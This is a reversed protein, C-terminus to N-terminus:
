YLSLYILIVLWNLIILSYVFFYLFSYVFLSLIISFTYFYILMTNLTFISFIETLICLEFCHSARTLLCNHYWKCLFKFFINYKRCTSVCITILIHWFWLSICFFWLCFESSLNDESLSVFKIPSSYIPWKLIHWYKERCYITNM